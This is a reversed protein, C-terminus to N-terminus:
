EGSKDGFITYHWPKESEGTLEIMVHKVQTYEEFSYMSMDKGFGSQRFGGHPMESAVMLHDNVLVHGFNLERAFRMARFVDRTWVSSALGYVSANAQELAEDDTDFPLVVLVPGFVERRVIEADPAVDTVITPRYFAGGPLGAVEARVGGTMIRGGAERARTVFGDVRDVQASSILSGLDTTPAMPDGVRVAEFLEVLRALLRDAVSRHVYIRTAATCDQGGNILAGATAGRAAAEIDADDCVVFPAKGGLELHVRKLNPSALAMLRRGTETDGTLSVVDVGGHAAIAAGVVDGRGTIVNLVGPPLGAEAALEALRITTLPTGSAPKLVVSNGAALAPAVKWIAMWLPYNWPAIQGVVGIPERRVMSTHSGSYEGAAKGELHRAATAFFRLNDISFPLDSDRRLKYASGTQATELRALDDAQAEILDALRWLTASRDSLLARSWAGSRFSRRAADVARDVDEPGGEPVRGVLAGTAPSHVDIWGGGVADVSRGDIFMRQDTMVETAM